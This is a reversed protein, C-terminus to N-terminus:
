WLAWRKTCFDVLRKTREECDSKTVVRGKGQIEAALQRTADFRSAKYLSQESANEEPPRKGARSNISSELLALNGLREITQNYEDMDEFGRGRVDFTPERALVHEVEPGSDRVEKLQDYSYRELGNERRLWDSYEVFIHQLAESGSIREHLRRRFEDDGMFAAVFEGLRRAIDEPQARTADRALAAVDREPNTGRTKHVRVEVTELLELFTRDAMGPVRQDLLGRGELRVALPYLSASLGLISFVKLYRNDHTAKQIIARFAEFFGALDEVYRQIWPRLASPDRRLDSLSPKQFKELVNSVSLSYDHRSSEFAWFHYRLVSDESFAGRTVLWINLEDKGGLQDIEDYARFLEGFRRNVHEDLEGGLFNSSYLILLSKAKDMASLPKGRDNVTQFIKIARGPSSEVFEMVSFRELCRIWEGPASARSRALQRARERIDVWARRLLRQSRTQPPPDGGELL